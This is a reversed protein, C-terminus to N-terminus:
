GGDGGFQALLKGLDSERLDGPVDALGQGLEEGLGGLTRRAGSQGAQVLAAGVDRLLEGLNGDPRLLVEEIDLFAEVAEHRM